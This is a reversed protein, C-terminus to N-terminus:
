LLARGENSRQKESFPGEQTYRRWEELTVVLPSSLIGEPVFRTEFEEVARRYEAEECWKQRALLSRTGRSVAVLLSSVFGDGKRRKALFKFTTEAMVQAATHIARERDLEAGQGPQLSAIQGVLFRLTEGNPRFRYTRSELVEEKELDLSLMTPDTEFEEAKRDEPSVAWARISEDEFDPKREVM